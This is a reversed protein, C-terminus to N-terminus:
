QKGKLFIKQLVRHGFSQNKFSFWAEESNLQLSGKVLKSSGLFTYRPFWNRCDSILLVIYHIQDNSCNLIVRTLKHIFCQRGGQLLNIQNTLVSYIFIKDGIDVMPIRTELDIVPPQSSTYSWKYLTNHM